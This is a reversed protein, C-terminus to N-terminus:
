SNLGELVVICLACIGFVIWFVFCRGLGVGFDLCLAFDSAGGKGWM